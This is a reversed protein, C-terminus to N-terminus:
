RAGKPGFVKRLVRNELMRLWHGETLHFVLIITNLRSRPCATYLSLLIYLHELDLPESNIWRPRIGFHKRLKHNTGKLVYTEARRNTISCHRLVYLYLPIQM